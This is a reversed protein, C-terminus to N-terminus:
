LLGARIRAVVSSVSLHGPQCSTLHQLLYALGDGVRAVEHRRCLPCARLVVRLLGVVCREHRDVDRVRVTKVEAVIVRLGYGKDVEATLSAPKCHSRSLERVDGDRLVRAPETLLFGAPEMGRRTEKKVWHGAVRGVCLAWVSQEAFAVLGVPVLAGVFRLILGALGTPEQHGTTGVPSEGSGSSGVAVPM